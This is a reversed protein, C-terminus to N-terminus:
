DFLDNIGDYLNRPRNINQRQDRRKNVFKSKKNNEKNKEMIEVDKLIVSADIQPMIDEDVSVRRKPSTRNNTDTVKKKEITMQLPFKNTNNTEINLRTETEPSDNISTEETTNEEDNTDGNSSSDEETVTNDEISSNDDEDEITDNQSDDINTVEDNSTNSKSKRTKNIEKIAEQVLPDLSKFKNNNNLEEEDKDFIKDYDVYVDKNNQQARRAYRKENKIKQKTAMNTEQNEDSKDTNDVNSEGTVFVIGKSFTTNDEPIEGRKSLEIKEDENYFHVADAENENFSRVSVIMHTGKNIRVKRLRKPIFVRLDKTDDETFCSALVHAGSIVNTIRAYYLVTDQLNAREHERLISNVTLLSPKYEETTKKSKKKNKGGKKPPM